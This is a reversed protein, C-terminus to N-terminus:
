QQKPENCGDPCKWYGRPMRGGSLINQAWTQGCGECKLRVHSHGAMKVGVKALESEACTRPGRQPKVEGGRKSRRSSCPRLVGTGRAQFGSRPGVLNAREREM